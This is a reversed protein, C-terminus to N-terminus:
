LGAEEKLIQAYRRALEDDDKIRVLLRIFEEVDAIDAEGDTALRRLEEDTYEHDPDSSKSALELIKQDDLKSLKVVEHLEREIRKIEETARIWEYELAVQQHTLMERNDPPAQARRRAKAEYLERSLEKRRKKPNM